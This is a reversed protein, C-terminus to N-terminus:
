RLFEVVEKMTFYPNKPFLNELIRRIVQFGKEDDVSLNMKFDPMFKKFSKKLGVNQRMWTTVHERSGADCSERHARELANMTFVEVDFGDEYDPPFSNTFFDLNGSRLQLIGDDVLAFHQLPCDGTLRVVADPVPSISTACQYFRDLVDNLNGRFCRIGEDKCWEAVPDDSVEQSTALVFEDVHKSPKVRQLLYWLLPRGMVSRLVKGELRRSSM